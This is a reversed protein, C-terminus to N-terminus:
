ISCRGGEMRSRRSSGGESSRSLGGGGSVVDGVILYGTVIIEFWVVVGMVVMWLFVDDLFFRGESERL